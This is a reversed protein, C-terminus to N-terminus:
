SHAKLFTRFLTILFATDAASYSYHGSTPLIHLEICPKRLLRSPKRRLLEDRDSHLACCPTTLRNMRRRIRLIEILLEGYRPLWGLYHWLHADPMLGYAKRTRMAWTDTPPIHDLAIRLMGPLIYPKPAPCLPVALLFLGAVRDPHSLSFDIAFLTGMSHACILLRDHKELLSEAASFVQERWIRLRSRSFNRVDGKHGDLQLSCVSFNEPVAPLFADFHDPTGLIGHVFLVAYRAGAVTRLFPENNM